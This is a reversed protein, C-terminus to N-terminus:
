QCVGGFFGGWYLVVLIAIVMPVAVVANVPRTRLKGHSAISLGITLIYLVLIIIQPAGLHLAVNM